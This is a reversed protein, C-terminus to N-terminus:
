ILLKRNTYKEAQILFCTNRGIRVIVYNQSLEYEKCKDLLIKARSREDLFITEILQGESKRNENM